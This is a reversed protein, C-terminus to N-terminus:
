ILTYRYIHIHIPCNNRLVLLVSCIDFKHDGWILKICVSKRTILVKLGEYCTPPIFTDHNLSEHKAITEIGLM